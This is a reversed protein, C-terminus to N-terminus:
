PTAYGRPHSRHWDWATQVIQELAPFEARWGLQEAIRDSSAVLVAPDGARRPAARTPPRKGTVHEITDVVERVSFGRGNGLNFQKGGPEERALTDLALVHAQALDVVHVYDRVCTGDPTPYDDGFIPTPESGQLVTLLLRPILHTETAHDEGIDGDPHAGAANFYRLAIYSLGYAGRYWRLAQEVARKTEGYPNTPRTPHSETIPVQQPEGYVAATSSFVLGRIAHRRAADLLTLSRTLNNAYYASPDNVSQGVECFAAMHVVFEFSGGGLVRELAAGDGFDAEVLPVGAIAERHGESLDDIVVVDRGSRVLLRVIHSGIYGAGGTVLIKGTKGM